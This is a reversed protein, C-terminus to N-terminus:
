PRVLVAPVGLVFCYLRIYDLRHCAAPCDQTYGARVDCCVPMHGVAPLDHLASMRWGAGTEVTIESTEDAEWLAEDGEGEGAVDLAQAM